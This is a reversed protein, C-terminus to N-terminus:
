VQKNEIAIIIEKKQEKIRVKERILYDEGLEGKLKELDATNGEKFNMIRRLTYDPLTAYGLIDEKLTRLFDKHPMLEQATNKILTDLKNLAKQELSQESVSGPRFDKFDKIAQYTKWFQDSNWNLTEEEPPCSVRDFVDEFVSHYPKIDELGTDAVTVYM